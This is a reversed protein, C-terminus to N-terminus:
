DAIGYLEEPYHPDGELVVDMRGLRAGELVKEAHARLTPQHYLRARRDLPLELGHAWEAVPVDILSELSAGVLSPLERIFSGSIGDVSWLGVLAQREAEGEIVRRKEM